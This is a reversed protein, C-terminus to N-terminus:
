DMRFFHFKFSAPVHASSAGSPLSSCELFSQHPLVWGPPAPLCSESVKARTGRQQCVWPIRNLRCCAEVQPGDCGPAGTTLDQALGGCWGCARRDGLVWAHVMVLGSTRCVNVSGQNSSPPHLASSFAGLGRAWCSFLTHATCRRSSKSPHTTPLPATNGPFPLTPPAGPLSSGMLLASPWPASAPLSSPDGHCKPPLLSEPDPPGM